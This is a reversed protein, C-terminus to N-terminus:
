KNKVVGIKLVEVAYVDHSNGPIENLRHSVIKGKIVMTVSDEVNVGKLEPVQRTNLHLSPYWINDKGSSSACVSDRSPKEGASHLKIDNLKSSIIERKTEKEM